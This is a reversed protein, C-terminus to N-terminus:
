TTVLLHPTSPIFPASAFATLGYRLAHVLTVDNKEFCSGPLAYSHRALAYHFRPRALLSAGPMFIGLDSKNSGFGNHDVRPWSSTPNVGSPPGCGTMAHGTPRAAFLPSLGSSCPL